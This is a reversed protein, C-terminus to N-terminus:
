FTLVVKGFTDNSEVRQHAEIVHTAPYVSDIIPKLIGCRILPLVQASFRRVAAAKEGASRARLVTGFVHLRKSLLKGLNMAAENGATMGVCILRGQPALADLNAALYPGGVLDLIVNVGLGATADHIQDAFFGPNDRPVVIPEDMGLARVKELKDATRSTGFVLCGAAHALQVAATGVGSAAAHILVTEGLQLAGQAFLADHATIFVEPLAAAETWGLTEPAEALASEPVLVYEAHAGGGTIGIVRRGPKWHLVAPGVAEVEGAFELGPIDRPAGPPPPYEGRRQLIDARNIGAARVRILVQDGGPPALDPVDRFSLVEPGGSEAIVIARM